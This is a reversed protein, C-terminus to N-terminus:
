VAPIERNSAWDNLINIALARIKASRSGYESKAMVVMQQVTTDVGEEGPPLTGYEVNIDGTALHM